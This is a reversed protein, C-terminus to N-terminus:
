NQASWLDEPYAREPKTAKTTPAKPPLVAIVTLFIANLGAAVIFAASFVGVSSSVLFESSALDEMVGTQESLVRMLAGQVQNSSNLLVDIVCWIILPLVAVALARTVVPQVLLSILIIVVQLSILTAIVPFALFGSIAIVGGGASQSVVFSQWSQGATVALLALSVLWGLLLQTKTM